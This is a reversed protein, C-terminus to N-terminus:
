TAFMFLICCSELALTGVELGQMQLLSQHSPINVSARRTRSPTIPTAHCMRFGSGKHSMVCTGVGSPCLSVYVCVSVSLSGLFSVCVSWSPSLGGGLQLCGPGVPWFGWVGIM